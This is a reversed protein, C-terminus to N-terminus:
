KISVKELPIYIGDVPGIMVPLKDHGHNLHLQLNKRPVVWGCWPCSSFERLFIEERVEDPINQRQQRNRRSRRRDLQEFAQKMFYRRFVARKVSNVREVPTILSIFFYRCTYLFSPRDVIRVYETLIMRLVDKPIDFIVSMKKRLICAM